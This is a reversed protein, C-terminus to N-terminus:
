DAVKINRSRVTGEWVARGDMVIRNFEAGAIPRTGMGLEAIKAAIEPMSAVRVIDDSIKQVIAAPTKAPVFYGVFAVSDFGTFGQETFTPVNPLDRARNPGAMALVKFKGGALHAGIVQLDMFAAPVQEGLVDTMIQANGRYPVHVMDTGAQTNLLEGFIHATSGAGATAYSYKGPNAKVLAVFQKLDTAPVKSSVILGQRVEGVMATPAFTRTFDLVPRLSSQYTFSTIGLLLTHGDPASKEVFQQGVVGFGGGRNEVVVSQKWREALKTAILRTITDTSGGSPFPVVIQVSRSPFNAADSQAFANFSLALAGAAMWKLFQVPKM